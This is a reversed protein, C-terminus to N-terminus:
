GFDAAALAPLTETNAARDIPENPEGLGATDCRRGLRSRSGALVRPAPREDQRFHAKDSSRV